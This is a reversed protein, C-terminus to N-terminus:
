NGCYDCRRIYLSDCRRFNKCGWVCQRFLLVSVGAMKNIRDYIYIHWVDFMHTLFLFLSQEIVQPPSDFFSFFYGILDQYSLLM